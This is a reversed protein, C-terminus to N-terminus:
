FGPVVIEQHTEAFPNFLKFRHMRWQGEELVFEARCLYHTGSNWNGKPKVLFSVKALRDDRSIREPEFDWVAVETVDRRQLIDQLVKRARERDTGRYDFDRSIHAFVANLDRRQVAAAMEEVARQIRKADTVAFHGILWVGVILAVAVLAGVFLKGQRTRWWAVGLIVALTALIMYVFTPDDVLWSSM